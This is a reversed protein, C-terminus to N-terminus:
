VLALVGAVLVSWFVVCGALAALLGWNWGHVRERPVATEVFAVPASDMRATNAM